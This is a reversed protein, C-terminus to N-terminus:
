LTYQLMATPGGSILMGLRPSQLQEREPGSVMTQEPPLKVEALPVSVPHKGFQNSPANVTVGHSGKKVSHKQLPEFGARVDLTPVGREPKRLGVGDLEGIASRRFAGQEGIWGPGCEGAVEGAGDAPDNGRGHVALRDDGSLLLLGPPQRDAVGAGFPVVGLLLSAAVAAASAEQAELGADRGLM